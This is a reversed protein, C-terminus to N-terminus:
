VAETQPCHTTQKVVSAAAWHIACIPLIVLSYQVPFSTSPLPATKINTHLYQPFGSHAETIIASTLSPFKSGSGWSWLSPRATYTAPTFHSGSLSNTQVVTTVTHVMQIATIVPLVMQIATTVRRVMQTATIVPRVMQIATTVPCVM